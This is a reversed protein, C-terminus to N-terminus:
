VFPVSSGLEKHNDRARGWSRNERAGVGECSGERREMRRPAEVSAEGAGDATSTAYGALVGLGFM